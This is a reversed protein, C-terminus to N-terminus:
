IHPALYQASSCCLTSEAARVVRKNQTFRRGAECPIGLKPIARVILQGKGYGIAHHNEKRHIAPFCILIWCQGYRLVWTKPFELARQAAFWCLAQLLSSLTPMWYLWFIAQFGHRTIMQCNVYWRGTSTCHM